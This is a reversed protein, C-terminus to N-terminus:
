KALIAAFEKERCSIAAEPEGNERLWKAKELYFEPLNYTDAELLSGKASHLNGAKKAM